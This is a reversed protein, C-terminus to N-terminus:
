ARTRLDLPLALAEVLADRLELGEQLGATIDDLLLDSENGNRSKGSGVHQFFDITLLARPPIRAGFFTM